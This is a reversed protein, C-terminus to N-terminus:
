KKDCIKLKCSAKFILNESLHIVCRSGDVGSDQCNIADHFFVQKEGREKNKQTV